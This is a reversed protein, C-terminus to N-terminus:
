RACYGNLSSPEAVSELKCWTGLHHNLNLYSDGASPRRSVRLTHERCARWTSVRLAPFYKCADILIRLNTMIERTKFKEDEDAGLHTM